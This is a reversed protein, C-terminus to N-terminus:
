PAYMVKGEHHAPYALTGVSDKREEFEEPTLVVVDKPVGFGFLARRIAVRLMRRDNREVPMVVLFDADSDETIENRACSGFLIVKEPHFEEVIRQVMAEIKEMTIM